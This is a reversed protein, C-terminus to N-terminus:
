AKRDLIRDYNDPDNRLLAIIRRRQAVDMQNLEAREEPPAEQILRAFMLDVDDGEAALAPDAERVQETNDMVMETISTARPARKSQTHRAQWDRLTASNNIAKQATPKACGLGKALKGISTYAEGQDCLVLLRRQVDRWSTGASARQRTGQRCWEFPTQIETMQEAAGALMADVRNLELPYGREFDPSRLHQLMTPLNHISGAPPQTLIIPFAEM